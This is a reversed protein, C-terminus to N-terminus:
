MNDQRHWIRNGELDTVITLSRWQDRPDATCAAGQIKPDWYNAIYDIECGEIGSGCQMAYGTPNGERDSVSSLGWCETYIQTWSGESIGAFQNVGGPYNGYTKKWVLNGEHDAKMLSGKIRSCKGPYASVPNCDAPSIDYQLGLFVVGGDDALAIDNNQTKKDLEVQALLEGAPNLVTLVTMEGVSAYVNDQSDIKISKTGGRYAKDKREEVYTWEFKKPAKSGAIDSAKIKGIFSKGEM